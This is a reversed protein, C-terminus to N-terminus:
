DPMMGVWDVTGGSRGSHLVLPTTESSIHFAHIDAHLIHSLFAQLPRYVTPWSLRGAGHGDRATILWRNLMNGGCRLLQCRGLYIYHSSSSITLYVSSPQVVSNLCKQTLRLTERDSQGAHLHEMRRPHGANTRGSVATRYSGNNERAKCVPRLKSRVFDRADAPNHYAQLQGCEASRHTPCCPAAVSFGNKRSM